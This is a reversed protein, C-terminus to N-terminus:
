DVDTLIIMLLAFPPFSLVGLAVIAIRANRSTLRHVVLSDSLMEDESVDRGGVGGASPYAFPGFPVSLNERAGGTM